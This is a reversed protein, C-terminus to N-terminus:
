FPGGENMVNLLVLSIGVRPAAAGTAFRCHNSPRFPRPVHGSDSLRPLAAGEGLM